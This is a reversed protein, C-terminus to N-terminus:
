VLLELIEHFFWPQSDDFRKGKATSTLHQADHIPHNGLRTGVVPCDDVSDQKYSAFRMSLKRSLQPPMLRASQETYDLLQARPQRACFAKLKNLHM